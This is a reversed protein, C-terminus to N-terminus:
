APLYNSINVPEFEWEEPEIAYGKTLCYSAISQPGAHMLM